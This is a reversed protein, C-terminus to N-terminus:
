LTKMFAAASNKYETSQRVESITQWIKEVMAKNKETFQKSFMVYQPKEVLPPVVLVVKGAYEPKKAIMAATDTIDAFARVRGLILKNINQDSRLGPFITYGEKKLDDSISYGNNAAIQDKSKDLGSINLGKVSIKTADEARVYLSYSALVIRKSDDAKGGKMPYNGIALRSEKFSAPFIGDAGGSELTSLVREWPASAYKFKVDPIKKEVMKMIIFALGTEGKMTFPVSDVDEVYFTIDLARAPLAAMLCGALCAMLGVKMAVRLNPCRMFNEQLLYFHIRTCM